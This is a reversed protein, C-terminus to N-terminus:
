CILKFFLENWNTLIWKRSLIYIRSNIIVSFLDYELIYQWKVLIGNWDEAVWKGIPHDFNVIEDRLLEPTIYPYPEPHGSDGPFIGIDIQKNYGENSRFGTFWVLDFNFNHWGLCVQTYQRKLRM